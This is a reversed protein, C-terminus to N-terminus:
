TESPNILEYVGRKVRRIQGEKILKDVANKFGQPSCRIAKRMQKTTGTRSHESLYELIQGVVDIRTQSSQSSEVAEQPEPADTKVCTTKPLRYYGYRVKEILGEDLAKRLEKKIASPHADIAYIIYGTSNEDHDMDLGTRMLALIKERLTPLHTSTIVNKLRITQRLPIEPVDRRVGKKNIWRKVYFDGDEDSLTLYTQIGCTFTCDGETTINKECSLCQMLIGLIQTEVGNSQIYIRHTDRNQTSYRRQFVEIPTQCARCQLMTNNILQIEDSLSTDECGTPQTSSKQKGVGDSCRPCRIEVRLRTGKSKQALQEWDEERIPNRHYLIQGIQKRGPDNM